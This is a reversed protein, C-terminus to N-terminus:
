IVTVALWNGNNNRGVPFRPKHRKLKMPRYHWPNANRGIGLTGNLRDNANSMGTHQMMETKM